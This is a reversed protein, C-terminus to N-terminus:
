LQQISELNIVSFQCHNEKEDLESYYINGINVAVKGDPLLLRVVEKWVKKLEKLYEDLSQGFGIQKPHKYDRVGWYPPSTVMLQFKEDPFTKLIKRCDGVYMKYYPEKNLNM